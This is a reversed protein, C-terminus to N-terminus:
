STFIAPDYDFSPTVQVVLDRTNTVGFATKYTLKRGPLINTSPSGGIDGADNGLDIISSGETSGSQVSVQILSPDFVKKTGNTITVTFVLYSDGEVTGAASESPKYPTPKGITVELGDSYSYGSGGLKAPVESDTSTSDTSPDDAASTDDVPPAETVTVSPGAITETVTATPGAQGAAAQTVTKTVTSTQITIVRNSIPTATQTSGCGILTIGLVAFRISGLLTRSAM